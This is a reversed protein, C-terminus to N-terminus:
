EPSLGSKGIQRYNDPQQWIDLICENQPQLFARKSIVASGQEFNDWFIETQPRFFAKKFDRPARSLNEIKKAMKSM